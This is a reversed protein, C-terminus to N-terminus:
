LPRRDAHCPTGGFKGAPGAPAATGRAWGAWLCDLPGLPSRVEQVSLPDTSHLHLMTASRSVCHEQYCQLLAEFRAVM